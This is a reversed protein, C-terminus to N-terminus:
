DVDGLGHRRGQGRAHQALEHQQQRARARAAHVHQGHGDTNTRKGEGGKNRVPTPPSMSSALARPSQPSLELALEAKRAGLSLQSGAAM